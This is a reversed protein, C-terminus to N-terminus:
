FYVHFYVHFNEWKVTKDNKDADVIKEVHFDMNKIIDM